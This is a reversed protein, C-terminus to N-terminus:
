HSHNKAKNKKLVFNRFEAIVEKKGDLNDMNLYKNWLDYIDSNIQNFEFRLKFLNWAQKFKNNNTIIAIKKPLPNELNYQLQWIIQIQSFVVKTVGCQYAFQRINSIANLLNQYKNDGIINIYNTYVLDWFLCALMFIVSVDQNKQIRLDTNNLLNYAINNESFIIKRFLPFITKPLNFQQIKQIACLSHGSLLFKLMEEYLRRIPENIILHKYNDICPIINNDISCELKSSLRIARLIRVPDEVVRKEPDGIMKIIKNKIDNIGNHFDVIIENVPDYYLANITFDRRYADEHFTGYNNDFLIKGHVSTDQKSIKTSRFTSVEIINREVIKNNNNDLRIKEFMIHVIKFRRGIIIARHRFIKKIIEPPADTVIDYDKPTKNLLLDRIGGGVIYAVFNSQQLRQIISLANADIKDQSINFEKSDIVTKNNM